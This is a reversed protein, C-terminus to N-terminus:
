TSRPITRRSPNAMNQLLVTKGTRPPAVILGRQGKGIPTLLDIIRGASERGDTELQIRENPYLPTLNDFLVKSAREAGPRATSRRSRSCRSTANAKRRRGSRAPSRTAPTCTSARPDAVPSVYIDDPGPLYNYDPSRLFGFGDPLVELVGESFLLGSKEAHAQLIEFILDQKRMGAAGPVELRKASATLETVGLDEAHRPQRSRAPRSRRCAATLLGGILTWLGGSRRRHNGSPLM